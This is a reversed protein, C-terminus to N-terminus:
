IQCTMDGQRVYQLHLQALDQTATTTNVGTACVEDTTTGGCQVRIPLSLKM